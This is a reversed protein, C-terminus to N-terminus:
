QEDYLQRVLATVESDDPYRRALAQAFALAADRRGADRNLTALAVLLQRDNPHLRYAAELVSLARDLDGSERIALAQVYAYRSNGPALQAARGLEAVADDIRDTRVYLLGLAHRLDADEPAVAIGERLVTEGAGDDGLARYLDALNVYAPVFAPDLRLATRYSLRAAAAKGQLAEVLAINLHAEPREATALQAARYADLGAALRRHEEPPLAYRLLPALVRAADLRVTRVPDELMPMGFRYLVDADMAELYRVAAGRVLPDPDGLLRPLSLRHNPQAHEHLL